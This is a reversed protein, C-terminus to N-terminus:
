SSTSPRVPGASGAPLAPRVAPSRCGARASPLGSRRSPTNRSSRRSPSFTPAGHSGLESPSEGLRDCTAVVRPEKGVNGRRSDQPRTPARDGRRSSGSRNWKLSGSPIGDRSKRPSIISITSVPPHDPMERARDRGIGTRPSRRFQSGSEPFNELITRCPTRHRATRTQSCPRTSVRENTGIKSNPIRKM